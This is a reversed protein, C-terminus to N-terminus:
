GTVSQRIFVSDYSLVGLAVEQRLGRHLPEDVVVQGAVSSGDFIRPDRGQEDAVVDKRLAWRREDDGGSEIRQAVFANSVGIAHRREADLDAMDLEGSLEM